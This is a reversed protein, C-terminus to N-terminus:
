NQGQKILEPKISALWKECLKIIAAANVKVDNSYISDAFVKGAGDSFENNKSKNDLFELWRQGTMGAVSHDPFAYLSVKKLWISLNTALQGDNNNELYDNKIRELENSAIVVPENAQRRKTLFWLTIVILGILCLLYWWGLALPWWGPEVPLQIDNLGALLEEVTM